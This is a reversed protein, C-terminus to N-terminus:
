VYKAVGFIFVSLFLIVYSAKDKLAFIIPDQNMQGRHSVLWIRSIWYLLLPCLLWLYTANKYLGVPIGNQIYLAFILVAMYGSSSGFIQIQELDSVQYGRGNIKKQLQAKVAFLESYRKACALSFFIFLSFMFLWPSLYIDLAIGGALIRVTYLISLAIVDLLVIKKLCFSYFTTLLFYTCLASLFDKGLFISIVISFVFLLCAVKVGSAIPVLGSAFVRKKKIPHMRDADLDILDNFIYVSSALFSFSFFAVVAKFLLDFNLFKHALFIPVFILFNKVWQYTRIMTFFNKLTLKACEKIFIVNSNEKSVKNFVYKNGVVIPTKSKALIPIDCNNDGIYSFAESNTYELIKKLKNKSKLNLNDDSAIFDDFINLYNCVDEAIKKNSATALIIKTNKKKEEKIFNLVEQNYPLLSVDLSLLSSVKNKFFAKGKLLSLPITFLHTIDNKLLSIVSEYLLDSKVLTGDLDVFLYKQNVM